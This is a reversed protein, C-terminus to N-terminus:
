SKYTNYIKSKDKKIYKEYKPNNYIYKLIDDLSASNFQKKLKRLLSKQNESLLNILKEKVFKEGITSLSYEEEIYEDEGEDELFIDDAIASIEEAEQTSLSSIKKAEIFKIKLLFDLGSLVETSMPGYNWGFFGPLEKKDIINNDKKFDNFLEEEFTVIMKLLRTRGSIPENVKSYAGEIFLLLLLLDRAKLKTISM